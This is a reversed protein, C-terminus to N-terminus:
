LPGLARVPALANAFRPAEKVGEQRLTTEADENTTRRLWALQLQCVARHVRMDQAGFALAAQELARAARDGAGGLQALGARLVFAMGRSWPMDDQEIERIGRRVTREVEALSAVGAFGAGLATRGRLYWSDKRVFDSRLLFSGEIERWRREIRQHASQYKGEYLDGVALTFLASLHQFHFGSQSWQQLMRECERRMAPVEHRALGLVHTPGTVMNLQAVLDGRERYERLLPNVRQELERLRGLYALAWVSFAQTRALQWYQGHCEEVLIREAETVTELSEAFRGDQMAAIARSLLLWAWVDRKESRRALEEARQFLAPSRRRGKTGESHTAVAEVALCRSLRTPEGAELALLLCRTQFDVGRIIDVLNLGVAMDWHVDVRHLLAPDIEREDRLTHELGRLALRGRHYLLSMLARRPTTAISSQVSSLVESMAEIGEDIHGTRLLQDAARRRLYAREAGETTAEAASSFARASELGRGANALAEGLSVYLARRREPDSTGSLALELLACARDFAFSAQALEAAREAYPAARSLEGARSWDMALAEVDTSGSEELAQALERHLEALASPTLGHLVARRVRDHSPQLAGHHSRGITIVFRQSTLQEVADNLTGADIGLAAMALERSLEMEAVCALELLRRAASPLRAARQEIVENLKYGGPPQGATFSAKAAHRLLEFLLMPSGEAEAVLAAREEAALSAAQKALSADVLELADQSSLPHLWLVDDQEPRSPRDSGRGLQNNLVSDKAVATTTVLMLHPAEPKRMLEQLVAEGDPDIWQLDDLYVLLRYRDCVRVLLERLALIGHARSLQADASRVASSARTMAPVSGFAPFLRILEAAHRPVFFSADETPLSRLFGVLTDVVGDIGKYHISEREYCRGTLVILGPESELDQLFRRVLASKGIGSEGFLSATVTSGRAMREYRERLWARERQRGVFEPPPLRRSRAPREREVVYARAQELLARNALRAAPDRSLLQVCLEDLDPPVHPSLSSPRPADQAVKHTIVYVASGDFPLRGTLAQFLVVGVAYWDTEFSAEGVAQEPAMYAATGVFHRTTSKGISDGTVLGFDLLLLEGETTVLVNSPKIDRHILGHQHLADVADILQALAQRLRAEDPRWAETLQHDRVYELLDRGNVLDMTFFLVGDEEFLEHLRVLRAHRVGQLARFERKFRTRSDSDLDRLMKVALARDTRRDFAEHVVGMGGEGLLRRLEFRESQAGLWHAAPRPSQATM